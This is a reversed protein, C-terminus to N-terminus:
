KAGGGLIRTFVQAELEALEQKAPPDLKQDVIADAAAVVGAVEIRDEDPAVDQLEVLKRLMWTRQDLTRLTTTADARKAELWRISRELVAARVLLDAVAAHTEGSALLAAHTKLGSKPLEVRLRAVYSDREAVYKKRLPDLKSEVHHALRVMAKEASHLQHESTAEYEAAAVAARQELSRRYAEVQAGGADRPSTRSPTCHIATGGAVMVVVVAIIVGESESQAVAAVLAILGVVAAVGAVLAVLWHGYWGANSPIDISHGDPFTERRACGALVAALLFLPRLSRVM